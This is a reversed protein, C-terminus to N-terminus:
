ENLFLHPKWFATTRKRDCAGIKRVVDGLSIASTHQRNLLLAHANEDQSSCQSLYGGKCRNPSPLLSTLKNAPVAAITLATSASLAFAATKSSSAVGSYAHRITGRLFRTLSRHRRGAVGLPCGLAITIAASRERLHRLAPAPPRPLYPYLIRIASINAAQHYLRGGAQISSWTIRYTSHSTPGFM